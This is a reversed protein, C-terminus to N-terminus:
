NRGDQEEWYGMQLHSMMQGLKVLCNHINVVSEQFFNDM